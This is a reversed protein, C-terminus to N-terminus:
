NFLYKKRSLVKDDPPLLKLFAEKSTDGLEKVKEEFTNLDIRKNKFDEELLGKRVLRRLFEHEESTLIAKFDRLLCRRIDAQNYDGGLWGASSILLSNNYNEIFNLSLEEFLYKFLRERKEKEEKIKNKIAEEKKLKYYNVIEKLIKLEM